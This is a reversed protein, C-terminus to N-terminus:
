VYQHMHSHIFSITVFLAQCMIFAWKLPEITIVTNSQLSNFLIFYDRGKYGLLQSFKVIKGM